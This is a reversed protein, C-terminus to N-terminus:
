VVPHSWDFCNVPAKRFADLLKLTDSGKVTGSYELGTLELESTVTKHLTLWLMRSNMESYNTNPLTLIPLNSYCYCQVVEKCSVCLFLNNM